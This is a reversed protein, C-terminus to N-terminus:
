EMLIMNKTDVCVDEHLYSMHLLEKWKCLKNHPATETTTDGAMEALIFLWIRFKTKTLMM